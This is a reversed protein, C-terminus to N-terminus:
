LFKRSVLQVLIFGPFSQLWHILLFFGAIGSIYVLCSSSNIVGQVLKCLPVGESSLCEVGIDAAGHDSRELELLTEWCRSEFREGWSSKVKVERVVPDYDTSARSSWHLADHWLQFRLYRYGYPAPGVLLPGLGRSYALSSFFFFFFFLQVLM